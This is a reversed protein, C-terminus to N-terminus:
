NFNEVNALEPLFYISTVPWECYNFCGLGKGLLQTYRMVCYDFFKSGLCNLM